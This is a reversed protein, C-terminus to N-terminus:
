MPRVQPEGLVPTRHREFADRGLAKTLMDAENDKTNTYLFALVKWSVM